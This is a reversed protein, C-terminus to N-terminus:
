MFFTLTCPPTRATAELEPQFARRLAAASVHLNADEGGDLIETALRRRDPCDVAAQRKAFLLLKLPFSQCPGMVRLNYSGSVILAGRRIMTAARSSIDPQFKGLIDSWTGMDFLSSIERQLKDAGGFVLCATNQLEGVRRVLQVYHYLHDIPQRLRQSIHICLWFRDDRLARLGETSWRGMKESYASADEEALETLGDVHKPPADKCDADGAKPVGYLMTFVARLQSVSHSYCRLLFAECDRVSGWRGTIPRPPVRLCGAKAADLPSFMSSWAKFIKVADRRWTHMVKAISSWYFYKCDLHKLCDDMYKCINKVILAHQHAMCNCDFVITSPTEHLKLQFLKRCMAEDSGADTCTTWIRLLRQGPNVIGSAHAHASVDRHVSMAIDHSAASAVISSTDDCSADGM